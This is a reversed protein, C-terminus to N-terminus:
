EIREIRGEVKPNVPSYVKLYDAIVDALTRGYDYPTIAKNKLVTYNDGGQRLFNNTVVSYTASNSLPEYEGDENKVLIKDVRDGEPRTPNWSYKIGGVQLFRGTASALLDHASSVSNELVIKVDRGKLKLTAITNGYPLAELVQALSIEGPSISARIGGSNHLAIVTEQEQTEWLMADAVLNGFNCEYFRCRKRAGVLPVEARGVITARLEEIQTSYKKVLTVLGADREVSSDLLIPEGSWHQPIGRGDFTVELYGLTKSWQHNSIVLVPNDDSSIIVIPYSGVAGERNNSLMSHSHGGVIVDVGDVNSALTLDRGLGLHTIAVIIDVGKSQLEEVILAAVAEANIFRIQEGPASINSTAETTLGFIGVKRGDFEVIRYPEILGKLNADDDVNINAALVPFQIQKIFRSLIKPGDDFEHNGLTMFDYGLRNMFDAAAEGKFKMYFLTGQFQDGADLLLTNPNNTRFKDIATKLRASGGYCLEEKEAGNDCWEGYDDFQLIRSHFDNTHLFTLTLPEARVGCGTVRSAIVFSALSGVVAAIVAALYRYKGWINESYQAL